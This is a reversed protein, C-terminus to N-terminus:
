CVTFAFGFAATIYADSWSQGVCKDHLASCARLIEHFDSLTLAIMRLPQSHRSQDFLPSASASCRDSGSRAHYLSDIPTREEGYLWARAVEHHHRSTEEEGCNWCGLPCHKKRRGSA